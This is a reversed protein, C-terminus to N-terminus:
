TLLLGLDGGGEGSGTGDGTVGYRPTSDTVGGLTPKATISLTVSETLPEGRNATFLQVPARLGESEEDDVAGDLVLLDVVTKALLAQLLFTKVADGRRWQQEWEIAAKKLVAAVAEWGNNARVTVDTETLELNFMVDKANAIEVFNPAEETAANYYLKCDLGLVISEPM